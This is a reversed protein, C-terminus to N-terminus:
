QGTGKPNIRILFARAARLQGFTHRSFTSSQADDAHEEMWPEYHQVFPEVVKAAEQLQELLWETLKSRDPWTLDRGPGAAQWAKIARMDAQWQLDFTQRLEGREREAEELALLLTRVDLSRQHPSVAECWADLREVAEKTKDDMDPTMAM